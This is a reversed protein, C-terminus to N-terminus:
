AFAGWRSGYSNAVREEEIRAEEELLEGGNQELFEAISGGFAREFAEDLNAMKAASESPIELFQFESSPSKPKMVFILDSKGAYVSHVHFQEGGIFAMNRYEGGKFRGKVVFMGSSSIRCVEKQLPAYADHVLIREALIQLVDQGFKVSRGAPTSAPSAPKKKAGGRTPRSAM